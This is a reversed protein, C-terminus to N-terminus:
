VLSDVNDVDIVVFRLLVVVGETRTMVPGHRHRQTIEDVAVEPTPAPLQAPPASTTAYQYPQRPGRGSTEDPCPEANVIRDRDIEGLSYLPM